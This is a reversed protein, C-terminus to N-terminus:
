RGPQETPPQDARRSRSTASGQAITPWKQPYARNGDIFKGLLSVTGVFAIVGNISILIIDVLDMGILEGQVKM